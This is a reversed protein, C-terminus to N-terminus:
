NKDAQNNEIEDKAMSDVLKMFIDLTEKSYIADDVDKYHIISYAQLHDALTSLGYDRINVANGGSNAVQNSVKEVYGILNVAENVIHAKENRVSESVGVSDEASSDRIFKNIDKLFVLEDSSLKKKVLESMQALLKKRTKQEEKSKDTKQKWIDVYPYKQLEQAIAEIDKDGKIKDAIEQAKKEFEKKEANDLKKQFWDKAHSMLNSVAGMGYFLAGGALGLGLVIADYVLLGKTIEWWEMSENVDQVSPKEDKKNENVFQEFTKIYEM